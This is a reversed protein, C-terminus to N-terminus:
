CQESEQHEGWCLAGLLPRAVCEPPATRRVRSAKSWKAPAQCKAGAVPQNDLAPWLCVPQTQTYLLLNLRIRAYRKPLNSFRDPLSLLLAQPLPDFASNNSGCKWLWAAITAHSDQDWSLAAEAFYNMKVGFRPIRLLGCAALTSPICLWRRLCQRHMDHLPRSGSAPTLAPRQMELCLQLRRFARSLIFLRVDQVSQM